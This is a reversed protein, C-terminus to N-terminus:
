AADASRYNIAQALRETLDSALEAHELVGKLHPIDPAYQALLVWYCERVAIDEQGKAISVLHKWEDRTSANRIMAIYEDAVSQDLNAPQGRFPNNAVAKKILPQRPASPTIPTPQRQPAPTRQNRHEDTDADKTDDINLLGDLAYKRAYSSTAGTIQSEDMGKKFQAERAFATTTISAGTADFVTATAKVYFRDGGILEDSEKGKSDKVKVLQVDQTSSMQILDDSLILTLGHERLLPKAAELIDECSRYNYNGFSNRQGKPAKLQEQVAALRQYISTPNETM